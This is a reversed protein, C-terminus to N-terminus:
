TAHGIGVDVAALEADLAHEFVFQEALRGPAPVLGQYAVIAPFFEALGCPIYCEIFGGVFDLTDLLGPPTVGEGDDGGALDHGLFEIGEALEGTAHNAGIVIVAVGRQAHRRRYGAVFAGEAGIAWGAAVIVELMGITQEGKAGVQRLLMRDDVPTQLRHTFLALERYDHHVRTDGQKCLIGVNM